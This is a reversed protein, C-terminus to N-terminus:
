RIARRHLFQCLVSTRSTCQLGLYGLILEPLPRPHRVRTFKQAESDTLAYEGHGNNMHFIQAVTNITDCAEAVRHALWEFSSKVAAMSM